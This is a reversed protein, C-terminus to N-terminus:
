AKYIAKAKAYLARGQATKGGVIVFGKLNLEKKAQQVAKVWKQLASGAYRKKANESAAKSVIRGAKNKKLNEKKLGGGTKVKSGRLVMAKAMKGRAIVSKKMAKKKMVKAKAKMVKAKMAKAKMAKKMAAKMPKAKKGAKMASKMVVTKKM